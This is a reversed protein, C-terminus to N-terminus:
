VETPPELENRVEQCIDEYVIPDVYDRVIRLVKAREDARATAVSVVVSKDGNEMNVWVDGNQLVTKGLNEAIVKAREDARAAPMAWAALAEAKTSYNGDITQQLGCIYCFCYAWEDGAGHNLLSATEGGCNPCNMAEGM